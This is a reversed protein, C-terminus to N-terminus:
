GKMGMVQDVLHAQTAIAARVNNPTYMGLPLFVSGTGGSATNFYVRYGRTVNGAADRELVEQQSTVNWGTGQANPGTQYPSTDTM